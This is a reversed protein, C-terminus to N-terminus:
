FFIAGVESSWQPGSGVPPEPFWGFTMPPFPKLGKMRPERQSPRSGLSLSTTFCGENKVKEGWIRRWVQILEDFMYQVDVEHVPM